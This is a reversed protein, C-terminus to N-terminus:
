KIGRIIRFFQLVEERPVKAKKNKYAIFASTEIKSPNQIGFKKLEEIMRSIETALDVHYSGHIIHGMFLYKILLIFVKYRYVDLTGLIYM